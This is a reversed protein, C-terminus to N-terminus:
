SKSDAKAFAEEWTDGDGLITNFMGNSKGVSFRHYLAEGQTTDVQKRLKRKQAMLEQHWPLESLRQTIEEEIRKIEARAEICTARAKERREPSSFSQGARIYYAAGWRKKAKTAAQQNTM